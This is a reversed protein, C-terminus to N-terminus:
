VTPKEAYYVKGTLFAERAEETLQEGLRLSSKPDYTLAQDGKNLTVHGVVLLSVKDVIPYVKPFESYVKRTGTFYYNRLYYEKTSEPMFKLYSEDFTEERFTM